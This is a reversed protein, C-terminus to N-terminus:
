SRVVVRNRGTRKAEYMAADAAAVLDEARRCGARVSAVGISVTVTLSGGPVPVSSAACFERIRDAVIRAGATPTQPLLVM